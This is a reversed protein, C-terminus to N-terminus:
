PIVFTWTESTGSSPGTAADIPGGNTTSELVDGTGVNEWGTGDFVWKQNAAGTAQTLVIVHNVDAMVRNSPMGNPSFVAYKDNNAATASADAFWFFEANSAQPHTTGILHNNWGVAIYLGTASEQTGCYGSYIGNACSSAGPGGPAPGGAGGASAFGIALGASMVLAVSVAYIRKRSIMPNGEGKTM